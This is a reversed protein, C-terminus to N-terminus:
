PGDGWGYPAKSACTQVGVYRNWIWRRSSRPWRSLSIFAGLYGIDLTQNLHHHPTWTSMSGQGLCSVQSSCLQDEQTGPKPCAEEAEQLFRIDVQQRFFESEIYQCRKLYLWLMYSSSSVKKDWSKMLHPFWPWLFSSVQWYDYLPDANFM